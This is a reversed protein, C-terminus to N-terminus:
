SEPSAAGYEVFGPHGPGNPTANGSGQHAEAIMQQHGTSDQAVTMEDIVQEIRHQAFQRALWPDLEPLVEDERVFVNRPHVIKEPSRVQGPVSAPLSWSTRGAPNCRATVSGCVLRGGHEAGSM